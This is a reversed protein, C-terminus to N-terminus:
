GEDIGVSVEGLKELFEDDLLKCHCFSDFLPEDHRAFRVSTRNQTL